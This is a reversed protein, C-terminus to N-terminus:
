GCLQSTLAKEKEFYEPKYSTKEVEGLAQQMAKTADTCSAGVFGFAELKVTGDPLFTLEMSKEEAM